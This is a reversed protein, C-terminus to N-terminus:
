EFFDDSLGVNVRVEVIEHTTEFRDTELMKRYEELQPGVMRKMMEREQESMQEMRSEMEEMGRRAEEREEETLAGSIGEVILITRYPVMMGEHDRYDELKITPELVRIEGNEESEMTFEMKRMIWKESDIYFRANIIDVDDELHIQDSLAEEVIESSIVHTRYGNIIEIGEYVAADKLSEYMGPTFFEDDSVGAVATEDNEKTDMRSKFYPRGDEYYKKHYTTYTETEMVYDDINKISEEYYQRFTDIVQEATMNHDASHLSAVFFLNLLLLCTCALLNELKMLM